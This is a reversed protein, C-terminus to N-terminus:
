PTACTPSATRTCRPFPIPVGSTGGMNTGLSLTRMIMFKLHGDDTCIYVGGGDANTFSMAELMILELIQDFNRESLMKLGIPIVGHILAESRRKEREIAQLYLRSEDRLRKREMLQAIRAALLPLHVPKPLCDDLDARLSNTALDLDGADALFLIPTENFRGASRLRELLSSEAVSSGFDLVILAPEGTEAQALLEDSEAMEVIRYGLRHLHHSWEKRLALDGALLFLAGSSVGASVPGNESPTSAPEPVAVSSPATESSNM